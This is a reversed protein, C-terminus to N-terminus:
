AATRITRIPCSSCSPSDAACRARIGDMDLSFDARRPVDLMRAGHLKGDFAYMGFTPPCNLMADGPDICVRMILDIVEDLGAGVVIREEDVGHYQALKQRLLSCEPDPYIQPAFAIAWRRACRRCRASLIRM